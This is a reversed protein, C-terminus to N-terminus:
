RRNPKQDARWQLQLQTVEGATPALKWGRYGLLEIADGFRLNLDAVIEEPPSHEPMVYVTLRVNGYWQDLTKYGRTDMWGQVVGAPDAEDAAWNVVYIKDHQMLKELEALTAELDLPRQRPLAYVPLNGEYYYNFVEAQGPAILVIADNPHATAVIFQVISRYDDRALAPDTYYRALAAGSLAGIVALASVTWAVGAVGRWWVRAPKTAAEASAQPPVPGTRLLWETPGLVARGLLLSLAPSAILLFKLYAERFLGFVVIMAIPAVVWAAPTVFRLWDLRVSGRAGHRNTLPWPLAGLLALAPILWIWWHGAVEKALPGLTLTALLMRLQSLLDVEAAIRPWTLLQRIATMLWPFYLVLTLILLLAWRLVRWGVQGRRRSVILWVLYLLSLLGIVLPFAYHTYLGAVWVLVLLLGPIPLLRLGAHKPPPTPSDDPPRPDDVPLRTDEQALYRWFLLVALVATLAVLVYMRAEQSYYVQFPAIAAVFAAALGTTRNFLRTGLMYILLVLLTGLTASLSRLGFESLGFVSTWLRLLWYYLPPHIDQAADQAIQALSRSALAASNGEDSWLSQSGLNYFRLGAALALILLLLLIILGTDRRSHKM